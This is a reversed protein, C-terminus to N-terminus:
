ASVGQIVSQVVPIVFLHGYYHKSNWIINDTVYDYLKGEGDGIIDVTGSLTMNAYLLDALIKYWESADELAQITNEDSNTVVIPGEAIYVALLIEWHHKGAGWSDSEWRGPETNMKSVVVAPLNTLDIERSQTPHVWVRDEPPNTMSLTKILEATATLVTEVESM